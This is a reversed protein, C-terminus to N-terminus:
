VLTPVKVVRSGGVKDKKRVSYRRIAEKFNREHKSSMAMSAQMAGVDTATGARDMYLCKKVYDVIALELANDIDLSDTIATVSDPEAYYQLVLGEVLDEQIAKLKKRASTNNNGSSDLESLVAIKDGEIIYMLQNEPYKVNSVFSGTGSTTTSINAHSATGISSATVSGFNANTITVTPASVSTNFDAVNGIATSTLTSIDNSGTGSEVTVKIETAGSVSPASDSSYGWWVFYPKESFRPKATEDLNVGNILVYDGRVQAGVGTITLSTVEKLLAM